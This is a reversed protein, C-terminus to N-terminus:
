LLPALPVRCSSLEQDRKSVQLSKELNFAELKNAIMAVTQTFFHLYKLNRQASILLARNLHCLPGSALSSLLSDCFTSGLPLKCIM